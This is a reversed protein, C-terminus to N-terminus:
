PGPVLVEVSQGSIELVVTAPATAGASPGGTRGRTRQLWAVDDFHIEPEAWGLELRRGRHITLSPLTAERELRHGLYELLEACQDHSALVVDFLGDGPDADPALHLRPGIFRIIMAEVLVYRGSLDRGDLTL